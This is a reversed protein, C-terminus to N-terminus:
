ILSLSHTHQNESQSEHSPHHFPPRRLNHVHPIQGVVVVKNRMEEDLFEASASNRKINVLHIRGATEGLGISSLKKVNDTTHTTPGIKV